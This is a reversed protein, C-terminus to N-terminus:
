VWGFPIRKSGRVGVDVDFHPFVRWQVNQSLLIHTNYSISPVCLPNREFMANLDDAKKLKDGGLNLLPTSLSLVTPHCSLQFNTRSHQPSPHCCQGTVGEGGGEGEWGEWGRCCGSLHTPDAGGGRTPSHSRRGLLKKCLGSFLLEGFPLLLNWWFNLASM